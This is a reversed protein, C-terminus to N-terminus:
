LLLLTYWLCCSGVALQLQHHALSVRVNVGRCCSTAARCYVLVTYDFWWVLCTVLVDACPAALGVQTLTSLKCMLLEHIMFVEEMQQATLKMSSAVTHWHSALPPDLAHSVPQSLVRSVEPNCVQLGMIYMQPTLSAYPYHFSRLLGRQVVSHRHANHVHLKCAAPLPVMLKLSCFVHLLVQIHWVHVLVLQQDTM